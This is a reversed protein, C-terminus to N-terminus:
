REGIAKLARQLTLACTEFLPRGHLNGRAKM